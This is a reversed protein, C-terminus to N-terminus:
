QELLRDRVYEVRAKLRPGSNSAHTTTLRLFDMCTLWSAVLKPKLNPKIRLALNTGVALAEFRVRPTAKADPGKAFGHPFHERVFQMTTKFERRMRDEPFSTRHEKVFADLFEDVDHTFVQYSDSYAFFRLALEENERRKRMTATIPCAELFDPDQAMHKVFDMFPGTYTGRRVESPRAPVGSTNVRDFIEQRLQPSTSDELFVMRLAKTGFKRQQAIPLDTFRFRNISPLRELGDLVLDNSKFQELTQIRQAGDVIEIRGDDMDALFMMPIPLGLIVSEVFRSRQTDPWIFERQYDPIYFMGKQFHEVIHDITFDRLDYKVEHQKARIETEAAQKASETIPAPPKKTRKVM